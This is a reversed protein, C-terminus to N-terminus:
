GWESGHSEEAEPAIDSNAAAFLHQTEPTAGSTMAGPGPIDVKDLPFRTTRFPSNCNGFHLYLVM